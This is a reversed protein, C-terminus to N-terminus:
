SRRMARTALCESFARRGTADRRRWDCQPGRVHMDDNCSSTYGSEFRRDSQAVQRAVPDVDGHERRLLVEDELRERHTLREREPLGLAQRELFERAVQLDFEHLVPEGRHRGARAHDPRRGTLPQLVVLEHDGHASAPLLRERM